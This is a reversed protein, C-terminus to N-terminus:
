LSMMEHCAIDAFTEVRFADSDRSKLYEKISKMYTEYRDDPMERIYGYLEEYTAFDKMDIYCTKPIYDEINKAGLYIPVTLAFFCDFIKETIYGPMDKINEYCINFRYKQLVPIKRFAVGKYSAYKNTTLFQSLGAKRAIRGAISADSFLRNWGMGYLDFEEPHKREFWEIARIRESYLELAHSSTKNNAFLCVLKEKPPILSEDFDPFLFSYNMKIIKQGDVIDDKWTFVKDFHIYKDKNFNDPHIAISEMALLYYRQGKVKTPIRDPMDNFIVIESEEIRNIDQTSLEIGSNGLKRKLLSFGYLCNDKNSIPDNLDFLRNKKYFDNVVICAKKVKM